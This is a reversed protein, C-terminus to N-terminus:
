MSCTPWATLSRRGPALLHDILRTRKDPRSDALFTRTQKPTPITGALDLWVRRLFEADSCGDALPGDIKAEILRDVLEHLPEEAVSTTLPLLCLAWAITPIRIIV